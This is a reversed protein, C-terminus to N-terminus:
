GLNVGKVAAVSEITSALRGRAQPDQSLMSNEAPRDYRSLCISVTSLQRIFKSIGSPM